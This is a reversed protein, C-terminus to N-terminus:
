RLSKILDDDELMKNIAKQFSLNINKENTSAIPAFMFHRKELNSRYIKKYIIENSKNRVFVDLVVDVKSGLTFFGFLNQYKLNLLSIDLVRDGKDNLLFNQDELYEEVRIKILEELNQRNNIPAISAMGNGRRGIVIKDDRKDTVEINVQSGKGINSNYSDIRPNLRVDQPFYVCASLGFIALLITITKLYFNM